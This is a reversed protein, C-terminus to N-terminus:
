EKVVIRGNVQILDGAAASGGTVTFTCKVSAMGEIDVRWLWYVDDATGNLPEGTAEGAVWTAKYSTCAGNSMKCEQIDYNTTGADTSDTCTMTIETVSDNTDTVHVYLNLLGWGYEGSYTFSPTASNLTTSAILSGLYRNANRPGVSQASLTTPILIAFLVALFKKM